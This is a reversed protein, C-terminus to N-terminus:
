RCAAMVKREVADFHEATEELYSVCRKLPGSESTLLDAQLLNWLDLFGVKTYLSDLRADLVSLRKNVGELRHAYTQLKHTDVQILPHATAYKYGENFHKNWWNKVTEVIKYVAQAAAISLKAAKEGLNKLANVLKEGIEVMKEFLVVAGDKLAELM